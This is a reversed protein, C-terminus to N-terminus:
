GNEGHHAIGHLPQGISVCEPMPRKCVVYFLRIAEKRTRAETDPVVADTWRDCIFWEGTQRSEVVYYRLPQPVVWERKFDPDMVVWPGSENADLENM